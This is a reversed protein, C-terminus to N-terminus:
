LHLVYPCHLLVVLSYNRSAVVREPGVDQVELRVRWCWRYHVADFHESLISKLLSYEALWHPYPEECLVLAAAGQLGSP